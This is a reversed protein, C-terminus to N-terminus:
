WQSGVCEALRDTRWDRRPRRPRRRRARGHVAAEATDFGDIDCRVGFLKVTSEEIVAVARVPCVEANARKRIKVAIAGPEGGHGGQGIREKMGDDIMRGALG